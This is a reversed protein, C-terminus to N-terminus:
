EKPEKRKRKEKERPFGLGAFKLFDCYFKCIECFLQVKATAKSPTASIIKCGEGGRSPERCPSQGGSRCLPLRTPSLVYNRKKRHPRSEDDSAAIWPRSHPNKLRLTWCFLDNGFFHGKESHRKTGNPM